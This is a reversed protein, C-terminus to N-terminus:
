EGEKSNDPWVWLMGQAVKTPIAKACARTAAEAVGKIETEAQLSVPM